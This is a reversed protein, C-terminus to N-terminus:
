QRARSRFIEPARFLIALLLWFLIQARINMAGSNIFDTALWSVTAIGIMGLIVQDSAGIRELRRDAHLARFSTAGRWISLGIILVYALLVFIGDDALINLYTNHVDLFEVFNVGYSHRVFDWQGPGVGFLLHGRVMRLTGRWIAIRSELEPVSQRRQAEGLILGFLAASRLFVVAFVQAVSFVGVLSMLWKFANNINPLLAVRFLVALAVLGLIVVTAATRTATGAIGALCGFAAIAAVARASRNMWPLVVFGALLLCIIAMLTAYLDNGYTGATLRDLVARHLYTFAAGNALLAGTALVLGVTMGRLDIPKEVVFAVCAFVLAMRVFIFSGRYAAHVQDPPIHGRNVMFSLLAFTVLIVFLVLAAVGSRSWRLPRRSRLFRWGAVGVTAILIPDIITVVGGPTADAERGLTASLVVRDVPGPIAFVLTILAALWLGRWTMNVSAWTRLESLVKMAAHSQLQHPRIGVPRLSKSEESGGVIRWTLYALVGGYIAYSVVLSLAVGKLAWGAKVFVISFAGNLLVAMVQAALYSRQRGVTNLFNGFGGSIALFVFSISAIQAPVVGPAFAPLYRPALPLVVLAVVALVPAIVATSMVLQQRILPLLPRYAQRSGFTLAMRPYMQDSVVNPLVGLVGMTLIALSYYGLSVTGLLALVVWRDLTTLFAYLIGASMIPFGIRALRVAEVWDWALGLRFPVLRTILVVVLGTALAQGTIFGALGFRATLPLVVAPFALALGLQQWSMLDFRISSKLAFQFFQYVQQVLLLSAAAILATRVTNGWFPLQSAGLTVLGAVFASLLGIGLSVRFIHSVKEPDGRGAHFPVERNMGNLVGAHASLGYVLISSVANWVGFNFPGLMRAAVVNVIFRSGQVLLTSGAFFGFEGVLGRRNTLEASAVTM